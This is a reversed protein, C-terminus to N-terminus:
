TFLLFLMSDDLQNAAWILQVAKIM